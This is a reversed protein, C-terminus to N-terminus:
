KSSFLVLNKNVACLSRLLSNQIIREKAYSNKGPDPANVTITMTDRASLGLINTVKLEFKYVGEVLDSVNTVASQPSVIRYQSPGSIKRWEYKLTQSQSRGILPFLLLVLFKFFTSHTQPETTFHFFIWCKGKLWVLIGTVPSIIFNRTQQAIFFHIVLLIMFGPFPDAIYVM